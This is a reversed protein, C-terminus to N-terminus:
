YIELSSLKKKLIIFLLKYLISNIRLNVIKIYFFSFFYDDLEIAERVFIYKM